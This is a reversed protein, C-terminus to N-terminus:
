KSFHAGARSSVQLRDACDAIPGSADRCDVVDNLLISGISDCPLDNLEFLKVSKKNPRLPSLDLALRRDIVGDTRFLVLDLKLSQFATPGANDIVFYVRCSKDQSELKNLEVAIGPAEAAQAASGLRLALAFVSVWRVARAPSLSHCARTSKQHDM